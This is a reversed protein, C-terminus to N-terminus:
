HKAWFQVHQVCFNDTQVVADLVNMNPKRLFMSLNLPSFVSTIKNVDSCLNLDNSFMATETPSRCCSRDDEM